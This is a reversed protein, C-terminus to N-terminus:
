NNNYNNLVSEIKKAMEVRLDKPSIVECNEGYRMLRRLLLIRDEKQNTVVISGDPNSQLLKESERLKYNKALDEKLLYAVSSWIKNTNLRLPLQRIKIINNFNIDQIQASLPNYISLYVQNEVYKIELPEVIASTEIKNKDKYSIKIKQENSCFQEFEKIQEKYKTYNYNFNINRQTNKKINNSLLKTKDSFRRELEQLFIHVDSKINEEPLFKSFSEILSLTKLDTENFNFQVPPNLLIYKDKTKDFKFGFVKLTNIYKLIAENTYIKNNADIKEFHNIIEQTSINNKSLIKLMELVRISTDSYKNSKKM